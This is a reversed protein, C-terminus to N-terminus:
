HGWADDGVAGQMVVVPDGIELHFDKPETPTTPTTPAPTTEELTTEQPTTTQPTTEQPTTQQPTTSEPVTNDPVTVVSHEADTGCGPLLGLLLGMALLVSIKKM